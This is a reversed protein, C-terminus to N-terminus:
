RVGIEPADIVLCDDEALSVSVGPLPTFASSARKGNVSRLAIHTITETMGYTHWIHTPLTQLKAELSGPIADGGIILIKIRELLKM